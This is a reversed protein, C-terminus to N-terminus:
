VERVLKYEEALESLDLFEYRESSAIPHTSYVLKIFDKWFLKSAVEIIHDVSKKESKTLDPEYGKDRLRLLKKRGGYANTTEVMEFIDANEEATKAIDWVFPGYNDFYWNIGTIQGKGRLCSHWDALYIMKTVRANSLEGRMHEPYNKLLYAIVDKLEAM